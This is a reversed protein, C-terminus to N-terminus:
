FNLIQFHVRNIGEHDNNKDSSFTNCKTIMEDM